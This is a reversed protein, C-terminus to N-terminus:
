EGVTLMASAREDRSQGRESQLFDTIDACGLRVSLELAADFSPGSTSHKWPPELIIQVARLDGNLIAAPLAQHVTAGALQYRGGVEIEKRLAYRVLDYQRGWIASNLLTGLIYPRTKLNSDVLRRSSDCRLVPRGTIIQALLLFYEYPLDEPIENQPPFLHPIVTQHNNQHRIAQSLALLHSHRVPADLSLGDISLIEDVLTNLMSSINANWPSQQHPRRFLYAAMFHSRLKANNDDNQLRGAKGKLLKEDEIVAMVECDFLETTYM